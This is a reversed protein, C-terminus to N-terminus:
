CSPLSIEFSLKHGSTNEFQPAIIPLIGRFAGLSLVKVETAQLPTMLSALLGVSVATMKMLAEGFLGAFLDYEGGVGAVLNEEKPCWQAGDRRLAQYTELDVKRAFPCPGRKIHSDGGPPPSLFFVVTGYGVPAPQELFVM